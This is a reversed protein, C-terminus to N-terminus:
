RKRQPVTFPHTQATTTRMGSTYALVLRCEKGAPLKAFNIKIDKKPATLALTRYASQNRVYYLQFYANPLPDSYGIKLSYRKKRDARKVKWVLEVSPPDPIAREDILIDQKFLLLHTAGSRLAITGDVLQINSHYNFCVVPEFVDIPQRNLAAGSEDRLEAFYDDNVQRSTPELFFVSRTAMPFFNLDTSLFGRIHLYEVLVKNRSDGSIHQLTM